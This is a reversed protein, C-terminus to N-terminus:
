QRAPGPTPAGPWRDGPKWGAAAAKKDTGAAGHAAAARGIDGEIELLKYLTTTRRSSDTLRVVVKYGGASPFTYQGQIEGRGRFQRVVAPQPGRGDGWDITATHTDDLNRDRFSLSIRSQVGPPGAFFTIPGLVPADTGGGGRRLLVLGANSDAVIDGNPSIARAETVFLGGPPDLLLTNLDIAGGTRTWRYAVSDWPLSRRVLGVAVGSDNIALAESALNAGPHLDVLGRARSFLFARTVTDSVLRRGVVEGAENLALPVTNAGVRVAGKVPSWLYTRFNPGDYDLTGVIDGRDNIFSAAAKASGLALPAPRGEADWVLVQSRGSADFGTGISTNRENIDSAYSEGIGARGPLPLLRNNATWRAARFTSNAPGTASSGVVEGRNNITSLITEEEPNFGRLPTLGRAPSWRFPQFATPVPNGPTALRMNLAVEGKDNLGALSSAHHNPPLIDVLHEGNFFGVHLRDNELAVYEFAVQGRANIVAKYGSPSLLNVVGYQDSNSGAKADAGAAPNAQLADTGAAQVGGLITGALVLVGAAVFVQGTSSTRM